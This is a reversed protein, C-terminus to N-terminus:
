FTVASVRVGHEAALAVGSDTFVLYQDRSRGMGESDHIEILGKKSLDSLNGRQAKTPSINGSSVWPNDSWNGADKAYELFTKLSDTTLETTM